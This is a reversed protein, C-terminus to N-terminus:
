AAPYIWGIDNIGLGSLTIQDEGNSLVLDGSVEQVADSVSQSPGLFDGLDLTDEASFDTVTDRGCGAAFVFLNQGAGGTLTDNGAGGELTDDGAGGSMLDNGAGGFLADDGAGGNMVDRGGEGHFTDDQQRGSFSDNLETGVIELRDASTVVSGFSLATKFADDSLQPGDPGARNDQMSWYNGRVDVGDFAISVGREHAVYAWDNEGDRLSLADGLPSWPNVAEFRVGRTADEPHGLEVVASTEFVLHDGSLAVHTLPGPQATEDAETRDQDEADDAGGPVPDAPTETDEPEPATQETEPPLTEGGSDAEETTDGPIPPSLDLMEALSLEVDDDFRLREVDVLRDSGDPGVLRYGGKEEALAYDEARGSLILTDVGDGGNIGDDGAGAVFTDDGGAGILYDEQLTGVMLEAEDSGQVTVGQQYHTGGEAGDWWPESTENLENLRQLRPNDDDLSQSLGWSGWRDQGSVEGFQMYPGDSVQSWSEWSAEYLDAMQESRVFDSMFDTLLETEEETLTRIAFSHHVHQGGEYAVINLGREAAFEAHRELKLQRAPISGGYDPDMLKEALYDMADVDPDQIAALLEARHTQNKVISAGFYTTVAVEEFVTTPDVFGDPDNEQWVRAELLRKTINPIGTHTGLVNVLRDEAADGFVEEWILATQTAKMAHYAYIDPTGWEELAQRKLWSTQDFAWNWVENSYEVRVTLEPDLNDRVYTAFQRIYDDDAMHPMTFWPDTGIENALQVMYEVPVGQDGWAGGPRSRDEWSVAHSNNTDGWDMFRIQRADEILDLWDPNFRAGAEYLDLNEEAVIAIDRLYDGTGEPDTEFINLAFSRGEESEFVIRGQEESLIRADGNLELRGEGEYTLVYVGKRAEAFEPQGSWQWLTGVKEIGEPIETVWGSEDLYGGERLDSQKMDGFSGPEHGRWQRMLDMLNLFQMGPGYDTPTGLNFALTPNSLGTATTAADATSLTSM